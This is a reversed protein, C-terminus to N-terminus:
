SSAPGSFPFIGGVKIETATVGPMDGARVSTQFALTLTCAVMLARFMSGDEVDRDLGAASLRPAESNERRSRITRQSLRVTRKKFKDLPWITPSDVSVM